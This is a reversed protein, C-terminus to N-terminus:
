DSALIVIRHEGPHDAEAAAYAKKALNLMEVLSEARSWDNDRIWEETNEIPNNFSSFERYNRANKRACVMDALYQKAKNIEGRDKAAYAALSSDIWGMKPLYDIEGSEDALSLIFTTADDRGCVFMDQDEYSGWIREDSDKRRVECSIERGM